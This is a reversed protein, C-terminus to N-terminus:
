RLVLGFPLAALTTERAALPSLSSFFRRYEVPVHAMLLKRESTVREVAHSIESESADEGLLLTSLMSEKGGEVVVPARDDLGAADRAIQIARSLGGLEDVLGIKKGQAGSWIRGQAIEHVKPVPMKRGKSVRDLFLDYVDHMSDRVRERTADDWTTLASLYAARSAAGPDPSAPFTYSSVGYEALADGIVIKGGLVGISGVISSKEAVIKRAPAILYYGGSAAMSGVSAILPKKDNLEVLEHWILDSALASGGPSDVRLVVAKVSDDKKLRRVTKIMASATIGGSDFIGGAEMSISGEEALVAIHPRGYAHEETGAIIRVIEGIDPGEGSKQGTGFATVVREAGAKSKADDLAESEYGLEDVFGKDKAEKASWPGAELAAVVDKPRKADRAGDLWTTRISRLVAMLSEKAPESPGDRTVPEAASKYKGMHVFDAEVKLKDLASKFYIMQSAIGVTNADGAPSMWIKDCANLALVATANDFTDAHCVVPKGKARIAGFLRALEEGRSFGFSASGFRVYVGQADQDDPLKELTRVLGVYTRSAPLPFWGSASTTEPAGSTLDLEVLKKTAISLFASSTKEGKTVPGSRPRGHCSSLVLACALGVLARSKM